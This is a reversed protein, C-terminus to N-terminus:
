IGLEKEVEELSKVGTLKTSRVAQADVQDEIYTMLKEYLDKGILYAQTKNRNQIAVPYDLSQAIMSSPNTKLQSISITTMHIVIAKLLDKTL